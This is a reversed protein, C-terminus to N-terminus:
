TNLKKFVPICAFFMVIKEKIAFTGGENVLWDFAYFIYCALM